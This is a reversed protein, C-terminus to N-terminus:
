QALEREYEAQVDKLLGAADLKGAVM